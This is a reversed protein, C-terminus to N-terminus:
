KQNKKKPKVLLPIIKPKKLKPKQKPKSKQKIKYKEQSLKENQKQLKEYALLLKEDRIEQRLKKNKEYEEKILKKKDKLPLNKFNESSM